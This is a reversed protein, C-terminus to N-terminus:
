SSQRVVLQCETLIKIAYKQNYHLPNKIRKLLLQVSATVLANKQVDVSTLAPTIEQCMPRNNFGIIAIDKPIHYGHAQFARIAGSAITDDDCIFATPIEQKENLYADIDKFSGEVTFSTPIIDEQKLIINYHELANQYGYARQKFSSIENKCKFYGIHKHNKEVIHKIAQFTGMRNNIAVADCNLTIFENDLAVIPFPLTLFQEMDKEAMETAFVIGGALDSNQLQQIQISVNNREDITHLVMHYGYQSIQQAFIELLLLFFPYQDLIAGDKKYIIFGINHATDNLTNAQKIIHAYGRNKLEAFIEQRKAESVGPKHNIILSLTAASIGLQQAIEKNTM